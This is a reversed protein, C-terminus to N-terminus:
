APIRPPHKIIIRDQEFVNQYEIPYEQTHMLDKLSSMRRGMGRGVSASANRSGEIHKIFPSIDAAKISQKLQVIRRPASKIVITTGYIDPRGGGVM